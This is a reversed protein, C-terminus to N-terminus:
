RKVTNSRSSPRAAQRPRRGATPKRATGDREQGPTDEPPYGYVGHDRQEDRRRKDAQDSASYRGYARKIDRKAKDSRAM